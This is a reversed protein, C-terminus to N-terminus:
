LGCVCIQRMSGSAPPSRDFDGFRKILRLGGSALPLPMEQPFISRMPLALRWSDNETETSWHWEVHSVQRLPEYRQTEEVTVLGLADHVVTGVLRRNNPDSAIMAINPLFVDFVLRGQPSLYRGVSGFFGRFDDLSHLHLVSNMAVLITDFTQGVLAFDRMDPQIFEPEVAHGRAHTRASELM